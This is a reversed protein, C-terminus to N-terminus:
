RARALAGGAAPYEKIVRAQPPLEWVRVYLFDRGGLAPEEVVDIRAATNWRAYVSAVPWYQWYVSLIAPTQSPHAAAVLQSLDAIMHKTAVDYPWDATSTVNATVSFHVAALLVAPIMMAATLAAAIRNVAAVADFVLIAELVLLPVYFLATRGMPYPSDDVIREAALIATVTVIVALVTLAPLLRRYGGRRYGAVLTGACLIAAVIIVAMALEIQYPRYVHEYSQGDILDRIAQVLSSADGFGLEGDRVLLYIPAGALGGLWLTSNALVRWEGGRVLGLRAAIWGAGSMVANLLALLVLFIAAHGIAYLAHAGGRHYNIISQFSTLRSRPRSLSPGSVFERMGGDDRTTWLGDPHGVEDVFARDGLLVTISGIKRATDAPAKIRLGTANARDVTLWYSGQRQLDLQRNHADTRIVRVAGAEDETLGTLKVTMREYLAPSLRLDQSFALASFGAAAMWPLARRVRSSRRDEDPVRPPTARRNTVVFATVAIALVSVYMNLAAINALVAGAACALARALARKAEAQRGGGLSAVFELLFYLMAMQLGFWLGYGRSLAFYDLLYPNLNLLLLGALAIARNSVGRLILVSFWVYVGYGILSPMRLMLENDGGALCFLRALVTSLFHNTAWTFNFLSFADARVFKLYSAAEDYTLPVRVARRVLFASFFAPVALTVFRGARRV